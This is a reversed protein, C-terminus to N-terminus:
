GEGRIDPWQFTFATHCLLEMTICALFPLTHRLAARTVGFGTSSAYFRVYVQLLMIPMEHAM